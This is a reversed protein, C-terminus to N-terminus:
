VFWSYKILGHWKNLEKEKRKKNIRKRQAKTRGTRKFLLNLLRRARKRSKAGQNPM